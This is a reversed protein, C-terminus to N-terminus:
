WWRTRRPNLVAPVTSWYVADARRCFTGSGSCPADVLVRDFPESTFNLADEAKTQIIQVGLRKMNEQLTRLRRKQKDLALILGQNRM